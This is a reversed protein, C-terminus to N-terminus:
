RMYHDGDLMSFEAVWAGPGKESRVLKEENLVAQLGLGAERTCWTASRIWYHNCAELRRGNGQCADLTRQM